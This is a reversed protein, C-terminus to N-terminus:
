TTPKSPAVAVAVAVANLRLVYALYHHSTAVALEAEWQDLPMELREGATPDAVADLHHGIKNLYSCHGSLAQALGAEKQAPLTWRCCWTDPKYSKGAVAEFQELCERLAARGEGARLRDRAKALRKEAERWSPHDLSAQSLESGATPGLGYGMQHILAQWDSAAIALTGDGVSAVVGNPGSSLGEVTVRFTWPAGPASGISHDLEIREIDEPLLVWQVEIPGPTAPSPPRNDRWQVRPTGYRRPPTRQSAIEVDLRLWRDQDTGDAPDYDFFLVLGSRGNHDYNVPGFTLKGLWSSPEDQRRRKYLWIHEASM